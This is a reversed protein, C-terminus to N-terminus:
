VLMKKRKKSKRGPRPKSKAKAFYPSNLNLSTGTLLRVNTPRYGNFRLGMSGAGVKLNPLLEPDCIVDEIVPILYREVLTFLDNRLQECLTNIDRHNQFNSVVETLLIQIANLTSTLEM